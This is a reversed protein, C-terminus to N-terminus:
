TPGDFFVDPFGDLFNSGQLKTNAFNTKAASAQSGIQRKARESVAITEGGSALERNINTDVSLGTEATVSHTKM